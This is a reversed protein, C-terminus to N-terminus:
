KLNSSQVYEIGGDFSDVALIVINWLNLIGKTNVISAENAPALLPSNAPFWKEYPSKIFAPFATRLAIQSTLFNSSLLFKNFYITSSALELHKAEPM